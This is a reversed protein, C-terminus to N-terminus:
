PANSWERIADMRDACDKLALAGQEAFTKIHGNTPGQPAPRNCPAMLAEDPRLKVVETRTPVASNACGMLFLALLSAAIGNRRQKTM